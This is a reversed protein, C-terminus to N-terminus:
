AAITSQGPWAGGVSGQGSCSVALCAAPAQQEKIDPTSASRGADTAFPALTDEGVGRGTPAGLRM